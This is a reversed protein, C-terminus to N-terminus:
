RHAQAQTYAGRAELLRLLAEANSIALDDKGVRGPTGGNQERRAAV